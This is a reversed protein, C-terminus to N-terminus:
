RGLYLLRNSATGRERDVFARSTSESPRSPSPEQAPGPRLDVVGRFRGVAGLDIPKRRQSKRKSQPSPGACRAGSVVDDAIRAGGRRRRRRLRRSSCPRGPTSSAAHAQPPHADGRPASSIVVASRTPGYVPGVLGRRPAPEPRHSASSSMARCCLELPAARACV